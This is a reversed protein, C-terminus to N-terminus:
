PRLYGTVAAGAAAITTAKVVDGSFSAARNLLSKLWSEPNEGAKIANIADRIESALKSSDSAEVTSKISTGTVTGGHIPANINLESKYGTVNTGAAGPGINVSVNLGGTQSVAPLKELQQALGELATILNDEKTSM